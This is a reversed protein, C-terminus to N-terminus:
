ASTPSSISPGAYTLTQPLIILIIHFVRSLSLSLSIYILSQPFYVIFEVDDIAASKEPRVCSGQAIPWRPMFHANPSYLPDSADSVM